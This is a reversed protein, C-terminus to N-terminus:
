GISPNFTTTLSLLSVNIFERMSLLLLMGPCLYICEWVYMRNSMAELQGSENHISHIKKNVKCISANIMSTYQNSKGGSQAAYQELKV